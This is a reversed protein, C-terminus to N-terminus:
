SPAIAFIFVRERFDYQSSLETLAFMWRDDGKNHNSNYVYVERLVYISVTLTRAANEKTLAIMEYQVSM